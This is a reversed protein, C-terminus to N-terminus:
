NMRPYKKRLERIKQGYDSFDDKKVEALRVSDTQDWDAAPDNFLPVIIGDVNNHRYPRSAIGAFEGRSTLVIDGPVVNVTRLTNRILEEVNLEEGEDADAALDEALISLPLLTVVMIASLLFSLFRVFINYKM